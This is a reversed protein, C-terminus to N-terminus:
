PQAQLIATPREMYAMARCCGIGTRPLLASHITTPPLLSLPNVNCIGGAQWVIWGAAHDHRVARIKVELPEMLQLRPAHGEHRAQLPAHSIPDRALMVDSGSGAGLASRRAGLASRRAGLASRRAGLASRRAGLASRRAGLASRRAGLASRRAGLASRRAGLASRRAGLASRRAGLASRGSQAEPAPALRGAMAAQGGAAGGRRRSRVKDM